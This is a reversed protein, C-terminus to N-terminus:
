ETLVAGQESTLCQDATNIIGADASESFVLLRQFPLVGEPLVIEIHAELEGKEHGGMGYMGGMAGLAGMLGHGLGGGYGLSHKSMKQGHMPLGGYMSMGGYM